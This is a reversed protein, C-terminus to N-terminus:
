TEEEPKFDSFFTFAFPTEGHKQLYSLREEAENLDPQHGAKVWWLVYHASEMKEFWERRRKVFNAHNSQYAFKKLAATNEWVSLNIIISAKKGLTANTANGTEDQFRWIFGQSKEALQNIPDLNDIFDKMGQHDLPYKSDAINLQALHYM